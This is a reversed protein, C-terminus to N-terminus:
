IKIDNLLTFDVNVNIARESNYPMASGAVTWSINFVGNPYDLFDKLRLAAVKVIELLNKEIARSFPLFELHPKILDPFLTIINIKM